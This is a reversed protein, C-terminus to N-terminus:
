KVDSKWLLRECSLSNFLLNEKGADRGADGDGTDGLPESKVGIGM